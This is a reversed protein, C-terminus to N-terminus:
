VVCLIVHLDYQSCFILIWPLIPCFSFVTLLFEKWRSTIDPDTLSRDKVSGSMM